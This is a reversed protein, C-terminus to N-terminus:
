QGLVGGVTSLLDTFSFSIVQKHTQITPESFYVNLRYFYKKIWKKETEELTNSVLSPPFTIKFTANALHDVMVGAYAM